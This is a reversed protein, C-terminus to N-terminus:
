MSYLLIRYVLSTDQLVASRTKIELYNKTSEKPYEVDHTLLRIETGNKLGQIEYEQM